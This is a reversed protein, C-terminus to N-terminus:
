EQVFNENLERRDTFACPLRSDFQDQRDDENNAGGLQDCNEKRKEQLRSRDPTGTRSM